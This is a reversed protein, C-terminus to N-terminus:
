PSAAIRPPKAVLAAAAVGMLMIPVSVLDARKLVGPVGHEVLRRMLVAAVGGLAALGFLIHVNWLLAVLLALLLDPRRRVFAACFLFLLFCGLAYSRSKVAYEFFFPYSLLTLVLELRSFPGRWV